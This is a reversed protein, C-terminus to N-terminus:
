DEEDEETEGDEEEETEGFLEDLIENVLEEVDSESEDGVIEEELAEKVDREICSRERADLDDEQALERQACAIGYEILEKRAQERRKSKIPELQLALLADVQARVEAETESGNVERELARKVQQELDLRTWGDLDQQQRLIRNAHAAGAAILTTRQRAQNRKREEAERAQEQRQIVPQYLRDRIGEAITVLESRPLQDVPLRSLEQEIAVLAQAKTEAPISHSFSRWSEIVQNKLHQIIPRARDTPAPKHGPIASIRPAYPRPPDPAPGPAVTPRASPYPDRLGLIRSKSGGSPLSAKPLQRYSPCGKLHARVAQRNRFSKKCFHCTAGNM